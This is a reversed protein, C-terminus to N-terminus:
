ALYQLKLEILELMYGYKRKYNYQISLYIISLMIISIIIFFLFIEIFSYNTLMSNTNDAKLHFYYFTPTIVFIITPYSFIVSDITREYLLKLSYFNAILEQQSNNIIKKDDKKFFRYYKIIDSILLIFFASSFFNFYINNKLIIAQIIYYIVFIIIFYIQKLHAKRMQEKLEEIMTNTRANLDINKNFEVNETPENKWNQQLEDFNM